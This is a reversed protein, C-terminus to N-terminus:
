KANLATRMTLVRALGKKLSKAKAGKQTAYIDMRLLAQERRIQTEVEKLKALDFGRVEEMSLKEYDM